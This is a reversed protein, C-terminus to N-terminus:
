TVARLKYLYKKQIEIPPIEENGWAFDINLNTLRFMENLAAFMPSLPRSNDRLYHILKLTKFGDFWYRKQKQLQHKRKSNSFIKRWDNEFDNEVLFNKLCPNLAAVNNLLSHSNNGEWKNFLSLWNKLISFSEPSYLLYENRERSLFRNVRQGTGFPVRWSGRSSPYVTADAIYGIEFDKALKEIFYFDEAAKRKNMGGIAVYSDVTCIMTSGITHHAFPSGAYKLGFLYYRLFIEYCIIAAETKPDDLSHEYRVVAAPFKKENFYKFINKLYNKSASCDADLCILLGTERLSQLASDMGIKRALGVGGHKEDLANGESACDIAALNLKLVQENILWKLYKLTQLNENKTKEDSGAVNNVVILILTRSISEEDNENLNNLLIKLNEYEAIAPIVVVADYSMARIDADAERLYKQNRELYNQLKRNM